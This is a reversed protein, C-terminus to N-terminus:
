RQLSPTIIRGCSRRPTDIKLTTQFNDCTLFWYMLSRGPVLYRKPIGYLRSTCIPPIGGTISATPDAHRAYVYDFRVAQTM